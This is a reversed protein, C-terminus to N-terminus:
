KTKAQKQGPRKYQKMRINPIATALAKLDELRGAVQGFLIVDNAQRSVKSTGITFTM